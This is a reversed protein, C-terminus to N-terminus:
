RIRPVIDPRDIRKAKWRPNFPVGQYTINERLTKKFDLLGRKSTKRRRSYLNNLRKVMKQIIARMRIYDDRELNSLRVERLYKEIIEDTASKSFLSFQKEM